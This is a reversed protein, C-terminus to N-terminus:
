TKKVTRLQYFIKALLRESMPFSVTFVAGVDKKNEASITGGMSQTLNKAIALGLGFGGGDSRAKDGRYFREFLHPLDEEDIYSGENMVSLRAYRGSKSLTVTLKSGPLSYKIGNDILIHLLRSLSDENGKVTIGNAINSDINVSKDFAVAEMQLVTRETIESLAIDSLVIKEESVETSSLELMSDVLRRMREAEDKTSDLWKDVNEVTEGERSKIIETNALIVTLPTKMDHSADAIFQKQSDWTEKVPKIAVSALFYSLAVFLILCGFLIMGSIRTISRANDTLIELSTISAYNKGGSQGKVYILSYDLLFGENSEKEIIKDAVKFLQPKPESQSTGTFTETISGNDDLFFTLTPFPPNDNEFLSNERNETNNEAFVIKDAAVHLGRMINERETRFTVICIAAFVLALIVTVCVINLTIFKRKLRNLM